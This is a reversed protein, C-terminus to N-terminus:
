RASLSQIKPMNLPKARLKVKVKDLEEDLQLSKSTNLVDKKFISLKKLM